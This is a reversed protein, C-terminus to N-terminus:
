LKPIPRKPAPRQLMRAQDDRGPRPVNNNNGANGRQPPNLDTFDEQWVWGAPRRLERVALLAWPTGAHEDVVRNLLTEGLRAEKELKSGVSIDDSPRLRWTNNDEDEFNIGRKAKALMANYAEARVKHLLVTGLALDFGALWRPSVEEDRYPEVKKLVEVLQNLPPQIRAAERQARSLATAFSAEDRKIFETTPSLLVEVRPLAAAKVLVQRMPSENVRRMYEASSVYDPRYKVMLEPDFFYELRSAFAEIEGGGVRRGVRRNPHVTFYIGGTEYTLRSLAYPGFGSDIVPENYFDDRYGLKIREPMISEPGQDVQAWQPSQDFNPDPDVYKVYSFERGFPAPVGIVYVPIAFKRCEKITAELGVADDGREDTVAIFMVNRKPGSSTTSGRLRRYKEAGKYLASFVREVGSDDQEISDIAAQIEDIDATPKPTVLNVGEGFAFVSTLLPEDEDRSRGQQERSRQVIGLEEYIRNFRDRIEQRRRQLSGSQDFFWVVLTPREEMSRLIEYTIRDVAGDTGLAGVGTMGKVAVDSRVLGVAQEIRTNMNVTPNVVPIELKPSPLESLDALIPATSLAQATDSNSNAGVEASVEDSYAVDEVLTFEEEIDVPTAAKFDLRDQRVVNIIPFVALALLLVVHFLLSVVFAQSDSDFWGNSEEWEGGATDVEVNSLVDASDALRAEDRIDEELRRLM